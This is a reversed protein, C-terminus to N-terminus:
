AVARVPVDLAMDLSVVINYCWGLDDEDEQTNLSNTYRKASDACTAVLIVAAAM